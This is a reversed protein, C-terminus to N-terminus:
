VRFFVGIAAFLDANTELLLSIGQGVDFDFNEITTKAHWIAALFFDEFLKIAGVVREAAADLARAKAESEGTLDRAGV